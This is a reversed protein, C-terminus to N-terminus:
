EGGAYHGEEFAWLGAEEGAEFLKYIAAVNKGPPIDVTVFYNNANEYTAGLAAISKWRALFDPHKVTREDQLFIRYTSHGGRSVVKQFTLIRDLDEAAAVVDEASIGFVFFPSNLIRYQDPGVKEAWLSETEFGQEESPDLRFRVKVQKTSSM